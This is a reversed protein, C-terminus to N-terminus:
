YVSTPNPGVLSEVHTTKKKEAWNKSKPIQKQNESVRTRENETKVNHKWWHKTNYSPFPPERIQMRATNNIRFKLILIFFLNILKNRNSQDESQQQKEERNARPATNYAFYKLGKLMIMSGFAYCTLVSRCIETMFGEKEEKEQQKQRRGPKVPGSWHCINTRHGSTYVGSCSWRNARMTRTLIVWSERQCRTECFDLKWKLRWNIKPGTWPFLWHVFM